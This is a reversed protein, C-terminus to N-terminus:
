IKDIKKEELELKIFIITSFLSNTSNNKNFKDVYDMIKDYASSKTIFIFGMEEIFVDVVKARVYYEEDKVM